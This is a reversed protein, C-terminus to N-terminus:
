ISLLGNMVAKRIDHEAYKLAEMGALHLSESSGSRLLGSREHMIQWSYLFEETREVRITLKGLPVEYTNAKPSHWDLVSKGMLDNISRLHENVPNM